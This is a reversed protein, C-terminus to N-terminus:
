MGRLVTIAEPTSRHGMSFQPADAGSSSCSSNPLSITWKLWSPETAPLCVPFMLAVKYLSAAWSHVLGFSLLASVHFLCLGLAGGLTGPDVTYGFGHLQEM